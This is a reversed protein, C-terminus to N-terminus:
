SPPVRSLLSQGVFTGQPKLMLWFLAAVVYVGCFVWLVPTWNDGSPGLLLPVVVPFTAAGLNGAMNMTGFITAVNNGGMAITLSNVIPSVFAGFFGGIGILSVALLPNHVLCGAVTLLVAVMLCSLAMGKRAMAVNGSRSYIWDSVVGGLPGGFLIAVLPVSTLLGSEAVSVGRSEQLYTPFWSAYFIYGAARFYQQGCIAWMAPSAALHKWPTRAPRSRGSGEGAAGQPERAAKSETLLLDMEGPSVSAHDQPRDRFWRYFLFAWIGGPLAYLVFLWRWTVGWELLIGTLFAVLIAGIQMGAGLSGSSVALRNVPMWRSLVVASCPFLGAQAAGSFMRPVLLWLYAALIAGGPGALWLAVTTGAVASAVTCVSWVVSYFPLTRRAGWRDGLWGAPVQFGAYVWFFGSLIWGMQEKSLGLDTRITSEAVSLYNRQIYAITAAM